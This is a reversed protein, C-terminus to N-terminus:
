LPAATNIAVGDGAPYGKDFLAVDPAEHAGPEGLLNVLRISRTCHEILTRALGLM